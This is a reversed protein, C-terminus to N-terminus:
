ELDYINDAGVTEGYKKPLDGDLHEVAVNRIHKGIDQGYAGMLHLNGDEVDQALEELKESLRLLDNVAHVEKEYDRKLERTVEQATEGIKEITEIAEEETEVETLDAYPDLLTELYGFVEDRSMEEKPSAREVEANSGCAVLFLVSLITLLYKRM